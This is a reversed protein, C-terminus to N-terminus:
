KKTFMADDLTVNHVVKDLKTVVRQMPTNNVTQFAM